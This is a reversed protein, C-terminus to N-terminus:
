SLREKMKRTAEFLTSKVTGESIGLVQAIEGLQYGELRMAAIERERRGLSAMARELEMKKELAALEDQSATKSRLTEESIGDESSGGIPLWNRLKRWRWHARAENLAIRSVWTRFSSQRQFSGIARFAKIFAQQACDEALDVDRCVTMLFGVVAPQHREVLTGFAELDGACAREVLGRDQEISAQSDSFTPGSM